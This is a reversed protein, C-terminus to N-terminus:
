TIYRFMILNIYQLYLKVVINRTRPFTGQSINIAIWSYIYNFEILSPNVGNDGAQAVQKAVWTVKKENM